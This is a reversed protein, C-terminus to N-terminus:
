QGEVEDSPEPEEHPVEEAVDSRLAKRERIFKRLIVVAAVM